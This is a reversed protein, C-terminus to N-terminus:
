RINRDEVWKDLEGLFIDLMQQYKERTDKIEFHLWNEWFSNLIQYISSDLKYLEQYFPTYNFNKNNTSKMSFFKGIFLDIAERNYQDKERYSARLEEMQNKDIIKVDYDRVFKEEEYGRKRYLDIMKQHELCNGVLEQLSPSFIRSLNENQNIRDQLEGAILIRKSKLFIHLLEHTFFAPDLDQEDIYITIVEDQFDTLYGPESSSELQINYQKILIEWLDENREDLLPKLKEKIEM